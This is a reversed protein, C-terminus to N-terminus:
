LTVRIGMERRLTADQIWKLKFEVAWVTVLYQYVTPSEYMSETPPKHIQMLQNLRHVCRVYVAITALRHLVDHIQIIFCARCMHLEHRMGLRIAGVSASTQCLPCDRVIM